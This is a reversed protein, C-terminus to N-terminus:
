PRGSPCPELCGWGAPRAPAGRALARRRAGAPRWLHLRKPLSRRGAAAADRVRQAARRGGDARGARGPEAHAAHRAPAAAPGAPVQAAAPAPAPSALMDSGLENAWVPAAWWLVKLSIISSLCLKCAGPRLGGYEYMPVNKVCSSPIAAPTRGRPARGSALRGLCNAISYVSIFTAQAGAEGGLAVVQM